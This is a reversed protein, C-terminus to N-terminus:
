PASTCSGSNDPNGYERQMCQQYRQCALEEEETLFNMREEISLCVRTSSDLYDLLDQWKYRWVRVSGDDSATVVRDGGPNFRASNMGKGDTKLTITEGRGDKKWIRAEGNLSAALLYDGDPTFAVSNVASKYPPYNKPKGPRSVNFLRVQGDVSSTALENGDPSFVAMKLWNGIVDFETIPENGTLGGIIAKRGTATIIRSSDHSFEAHRVEEDGHSLLPTEGGLERNWIIAHGKRASPTTIFRSGDPSYIAKELRSEPEFIIKPDGSNARWEKVQSWKNNEPNAQVTLIKQVGEDIGSAPSFDISKVKETGLERLKVLQGTVEDEQWVSAPHNKFAAAVYSGDQSFRADLAESDQRTLLTPESSGRADWLRVQKDHSASVMRINDECFLAGTVDDEHGAFARSEKLTTGSELGAVDWVRVTHDDSATVVFAGDPDPSFNGSRVPGSHGSLTVPKYTVETDLLDAVDWLMATTDESITLIRGDDPSFKVGTIWNTHGHLEIPAELVLPENQESATQLPDLKWLLTKDDYAVTVLYRGNNSFVAYEVPNNHLDVTYLERYDRGSWIKASGNDLAVVVYSGDPSYSANMVGAGGTDLLAMQRGYHNEDAQDVGCDNVVSGDIATKNRVDWVRVMGGYTASLLHQGDKRFTASIIDDAHCGVITPRTTESSEWLRVTKDTWTAVRDGFSNFVAGFVVGEHDALTKVEHPYELDWIKATTDESATVVQKDHPNCALSTIANGHEKMIDMPINKQVTELAVRVGHAPEGYDELSLILLSSLLPDTQSEALSVVRAAHVRNIEARARVGLFSAALVAVIIVTSATMWGIKRLRRKRERQSQALRSADIMRREHKKWRRMGRAGAEAIGLDAEDLTTGVRDNEWEGARNEITRLARQGPRASKDFRERVLPALTDHALRTQTTQTTTTGDTTTTASVTLLFLDECRSVFTGLRDKVHSYKKELDERTQAESTGRGTTHFRLIDLALGSRVEAKHTEKLNDLQQSLFKHLGYSGNKLDAYLKADFRPPIGASDWMRGLRIQLTPALSSEEDRLLETAMSEALGEEISLNYHKKLREVTAPGEIAEIIGRKDLPELYRITHPLKLRELRRKVDLAWEKRFSLILKGQPRGSQRQYLPILNKLFDDLETKNHKSPRTFVEELQDVIVSVPNGSKSELTKWSELFPAGAASGLEENFMAALGKSRRRRFYRMVHPKEPRSELRPILGAALLSSKGVGSQGCYLIIPAASPDTILQYLERIQYGRGFFVEADDRTFWSLQRYPRDPLDREPLRPLGLLPNDTADHLNWNETSESGSRVFLHWPNDDAIIDKHVSTGIERYLNLRDSGRDTIIAAEAENFAVHLTAGGALGTYFHGAFQTAVADEIARSTAIVASVNADLLGRAQKQTSCGNLFVLELGKQQGFFAALGGADAAHAEGDASELMLQYDNAHGGYHFIAIRDRYEASQFVSFIDQSTANTRIVLECLDDREAQELIERLHRVEKPLERLYGQIEKQGIENAFALFIVPLNDKQPM